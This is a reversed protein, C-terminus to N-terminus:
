PPTASQGIELGDFISHCVRMMVKAVRNYYYLIFESKSEVAKVM